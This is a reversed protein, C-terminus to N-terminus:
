LIGKFKYTATLGVANKKYSSPEYNSSNESSTINFRVDLKKNVSKTINFTYSTFDDERKTNLAVITDQFDSTSNKYSVGTIWSFYKLKYSIDYTFVKKDIFNDSSNKNVKSEDANTLKLSFLHMGKVYNLDASYDFFNSDKGTNVSDTYRKQYYNSRLNLFMNRNVSYTLSPKFGVTKLINDGGYTLDTYYIPLLTKYQKYRYGLATSINIFLFDYDSHKINGTTGKNNQNVIQINNNWSYKATARKQYIHSLDLAENLYWSDIEGTSNFGSPDFGPSTVSLYNIVDSEQPSSNVNSDKGFGISALLQWKHKKTKQDILKLFKNINIKVDDPPNSSLVVEFEAKSAELMNLALYTRALELRARHNNEDIILVRDFAAIAEKYNGKSYSELGHEFDINAFLFTTAIIITLFIKKM